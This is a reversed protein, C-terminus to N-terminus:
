FGIRRDVRADTINSTFSAFDQNPKRIKNQLSKLSEEMTFINFCPLFLDLFWISRSVIAMKHIIKWAYHEDSM